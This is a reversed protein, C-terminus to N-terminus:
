HCCEYFFANINDIEIDDNTNIGLADIKCRSNYNTKNRILQWLKNTDKPDLNSFKDSRVEAVIRAIKQSLTDAKATRGQHYLYNRKRLLSKVLPTVFWPDSDRVTVKKFPICKTILGKVIQVFINYALDVDTGVAYVAGWNYASLTARLNAIHQARIDPFSTTKRGIKEKDSSLHDTGSLCNALVARHKTKIASVSTRITFLDVNNTLFKDLIRKGHTVDQVLQVLGSESELKSHDLNNLDGIISITAEPDACALDEIDSMLDSILDKSDYIPKPPHYIICYYFTCSM